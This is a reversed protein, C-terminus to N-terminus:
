RSDAARMWPLVIRDISDFYRSAKRYSQTLLRACVLKIGTQGFLSGARLEGACIGPWVSSPETVLTM